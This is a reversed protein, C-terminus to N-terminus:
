FQDKNAEHWKWFDGKKYLKKFSKNQERQGHFEAKRKEIEQRYPQWEILEGTYRDRCYQPYNKSAKQGNSGGTIRLTLYDDEIIECFDMDVRAGLDWGRVHGYIGSSKTGM